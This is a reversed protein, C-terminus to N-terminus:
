VVGVVELGFAGGGPLLFEVGNVSQYFSVRGMAFLTGAGSPLESVSTSFSSGTFDREIVLPAAMVSTYGQTEFDFRVVGLVVEMYDSHEPFGASAAAFGSVTFTLSDWDFGYTCPLLTSRKPTFNFNKFLQQGAATAMGHSVQRKGRESISDMAKLSTFLQMLRSHLSGDKYGILFPIIARKFAQNVKSCAAFESNNERVRVMNPSTKIAEGTFGGGATRATPVGKRYYFNIGGLTGEIFVIGRQKAM